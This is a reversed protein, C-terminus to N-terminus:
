GMSGPRTAMWALGVAALLAVTASAMMTLLVPLVVM